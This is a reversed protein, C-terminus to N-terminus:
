PMVIKARIFRTAGEVGVACAASDGERFRPDDMDIVQIPVLENPATGSHIELRGNIPAAKGDRIVAHRRLLSVTMRAVHDDIDLSSVRLHGWDESYGSATIDLNLLYANVFADHTMRNVMSKVVPYDGFGNLWGAEADTLTVAGDLGVIDGELFIPAVDSYSGFLTAINVPGGYDVSRVPTEAGSAFDFATEGDADLPTEKGGAGMVSATYRRKGCDLILKITYDTGLRPSVGTVDLWRQVDNQRTFVQFHGNTGICVAAKVDSMDMLSNATMDRRISEFTLTTYLTVFRGAPPTHPTFRNEAQTPTWGNVYEFPNRWVGTAEQTEVSEEVWHLARNEPTDPYRDGFFDEHTFQAVVTGSPLYLDAFAKAKVTVSGAIAFPRHYVASENSPESGDLTYRIVAGDTVCSLSVYRTEAYFRTGSPPSVTPMACAETKETPNLDVGHQNNVRGTGVTYTGKENVTTSVCASVSVVTEGYHTDGVAKLTYTAAPLFLAYIGKADTIATAATVGTATDTASVTMGPIPVGEGNIARGSVITCDAAAVDPPYVNYVISSISTFAEDASSLDPPAYWANGEWGDEIRNNGAWGLNFHVYLTGDQYGYGDAVLAHGPVSVGLPLGADLNSLIGNRWDTESPAVKIRANQYGFQDRLRHYFAALHSGSSSEGYSTLCTLGVDRTLKGIARRGEATEGSMVDWDYTGGFAPDWATYGSGSATQYGLSISWEGVEKVTGSYDKIATIAARPWKHYYLIQAGATAVCGCPRNLPTYLNFCKYSMAIHATPSLYVSFSGQAWRTTLLVGVRLDSVSLLPDTALKVGSPALLRRWKAANRASPSPSAAALRGGAPQAALDETAAAVDVPLMALLPNAAPDDVWIGDRSYALIPNLGTDGSTVVFGGGKLNIVFFTGKGAKGAYPLVSETEVGSGFVPGLTENLRVWGIVAQEADAETVPAAASETVTLGTVLAAALMARVARHKGRIIRM